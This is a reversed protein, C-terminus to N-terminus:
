QSRPQTTRGARQRDLADVQQQSLMGEIKKLNGNMVDKWAELNNLSNTLAVEKAQNAEKALRLETRIEVMTDHDASRAWWSQIGFAMVAALIAGAAWKPVTVSDVKNNVTVREWNAPSAKAWLGRLADVLSPWHLTGQQVEVASPTVTQPLAHLKVAASKM